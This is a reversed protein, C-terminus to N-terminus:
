GRSPRVRRKKVNSTRLGRAIRYELYPSQVVGTGPEPEPDPPPPTDLDQVTFTVRFTPGQSM